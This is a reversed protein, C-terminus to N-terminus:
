PVSTNQATPQPGCQRADVVPRAARHCPEPNGHRSDDSDDRDDGACSQGCESRVPHLGYRGPHGNHQKHNPQQEVGPHTCRNVSLEGGRGFDILHQRVDTSQLGIPFRIM